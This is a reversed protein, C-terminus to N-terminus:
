RSKPQINLRLEWTRNGSKLAVHDREIETISAGRVTEGARVIQGNIVAFRSRPNSSWVLADLKLDPEGASQSPSKQTRITPPAEQTEQRVERPSSKLSRDANPVFARDANPVSARDANSVFARDASPVFGTEGTIKPRPLGTKGPSKESVSLSSVTGRRSKPPVVAQKPEDKDADSHFAPVSSGPSVWPKYQIVAWTGAGLLPLLLSLTMMRRRFWQRRLRKELSKRPDLQQPLSELGTQQPEREIRKLAELIASLSQV